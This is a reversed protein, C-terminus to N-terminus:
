PANEAPPLQDVAPPASSRESYKELSEIMRTVAALAREFDTELYRKLKAAQALFDESEKRIVSRWRKVAQVKEEATRLRLRAKEVAKREDYCFRRDESSTTLECRELAIKAEALAQSARQEERPWFVARDHEMWEGPRRGELELATLANEADEAFQLLAVRFSRLAEISTLNAPGSTM